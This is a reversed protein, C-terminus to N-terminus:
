TRRVEQREHPEGDGTAHREWRQGAEGGADAPETSDGVDVPRVSAGRELLRPQARTGRPVAPDRCVVRGRAVAACLVGDRGRVQTLDVGSSKLGDLFELEATKAARESALQTAALETMAKLKENLQEREMALVHTVEARHGVRQKEERALESELKMDAISLAVRETDAQLRLKTSCVGVRWLGLLQCRM